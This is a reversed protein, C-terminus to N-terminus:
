DGHEDQVHVDFLVSSDQGPSRRVIRSRIRAPMPRHVTIHEYSMPLHPRDSVHGILSGAATDLLAPHVG